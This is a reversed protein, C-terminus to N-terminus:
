WGQLGSYPAPGYGSRGNVGAFDERVFQRFDADGRGLKGPLEPHRRVADALDDRALTGDGAVAGQAKRRNSLLARNQSL